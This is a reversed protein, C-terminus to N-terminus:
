TTQFHLTSFKKNSNMNKIKEVMDPILNITSLTKGSGAIGSLIFPESKQIFTDIYKAQEKTLVEQYIIENDNFDIARFTM